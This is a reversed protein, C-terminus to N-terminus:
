AARRSELRALEELIAPHDDLLAVRVRASPSM